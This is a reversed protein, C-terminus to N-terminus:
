RGLTRRLLFNPKRIRRVLRLLFCQICADAATSLLTRCIGLARRRAVRRFGRESQFGYVALSRRELRSMILAPILFLLFNLGEILIAFWPNQGISTGPGKQGFIAHLARNLGFGLAVLPIAYLVLRWGARLGNPGFWISRRTQVPQMPNEVVPPPASNNTLAHEAM